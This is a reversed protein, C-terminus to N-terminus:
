CLVFWDLVLWKTAYDSIGLSAAANPANLNPLEIDNMLVYSDNLGNRIDSLQKATYIGYPNNTPDYVPITINMTYTGGQSNTITYIVGKTYDKATAPDPSITYGSPLEAAAILQALNFGRPMNKVTQTAQSIVIPTADQGFKFTIPQFEVPKPEETKKCSLIGILALLLFSILLRFKM